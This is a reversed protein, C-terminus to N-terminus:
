RPLIFIRSTPRLLCRCFNHAVSPSHTHRPPHSTTYTPKANHQTSNATNIRRSHTGRARQKKTGLEKTTKATVYLVTTNFIFSVNCTKTGHHFNTYVFICCPSRSGIVPGIAGRHPVNTGCRPVGTSRLTTRQGAVRNMAGCRPENDRLTILQGSIYWYM